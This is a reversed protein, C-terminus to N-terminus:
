AGRRDPPGGIGKHSVACKLRRLKRRAVPMHAAIGAAAQLKGGPSCDRLGCEALAAAKLLIVAAAAHTHSRSYSRLSGLM